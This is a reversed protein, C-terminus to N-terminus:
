IHYPDNHNNKLFKLCPVFNLIIRILRNKKRKEQYKVKDFPFSHVNLNLFPQFFFPFFVTYLRQPNPTKRLKPRSILFDHFLRLFHDAVLTHDHIHALLLVLRKRLIAFFSLHLLCINYPVDDELLDHRFLILLRWGQKISVILSSLYVKLCIRWPTPM